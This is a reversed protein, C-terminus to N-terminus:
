VFQLILYSAVRVKYTKEREIFNKRLLEVHTMDDRNRDQEDALEKKFKAQV